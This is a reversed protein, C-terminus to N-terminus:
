KLMGKQPELICFSQDPHDGSLDYEPAPLRVMQWNQEKGLQVGMM